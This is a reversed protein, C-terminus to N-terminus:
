DPAHILICRDPHSEIFEIICQNTGDWLNFHRTSLFPFFPRKANKYTRHNLSRVCQVPHRVVFVYYPDPLIEHWGELFFPGRPDKWGILQTGAANPLFREAMLQKASEKFDLTKAFAVSKSRDIFSWKSSLGYTQIIRQHFNVIV